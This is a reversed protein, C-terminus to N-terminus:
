LSKSLMWTMLEPDAYAHDWSNHGVGPYETYRVRGGAAKIAENLKRSGDVPVVPDDGGHFIWAPTKGIKAAVDAYSKPDHAYAIKEMEPHQQRFHEPLVIGGCIPVTAAFKKPNQAAMAWSGCGGMSLVTLSTRKSDGKFEKSAAALSALAMNEMAPESWWSGTQCQPMVMIAAFRTRDQRVATAMGLQTQLLGDSGREGAGHRFLIILWKRNSSWDEPLFVQYKYAANHLSLAGDLFGTDSKRAFARSSISLFVVAAFFARARYSIL